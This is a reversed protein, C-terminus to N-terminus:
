ASYIFNGLGFTPEMVTTQNVGEDLLVKGVKDALGIPTQRDGYERSGVNLEGSKYWKKWVNLEEYNNFFNKVRTAKFMKYNIISLKEQNDHQLIEEILSNNTDM